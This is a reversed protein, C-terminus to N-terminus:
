EIMILKNFKKPFLNKFNRMLYNYYIKKFRKKIFDELEDNSTRIFKRYNGAIISSLTVCLTLILNGAFIGAISLGNSLGWFSRESKKNSYLGERLIIDNYEKLLEEPRDYNSDKFIVEKLLQAGRKDRLDIFKNFNFNECNLDNSLDPFRNIEFILKTNGSDIKVENLDLTKMLLKKDNTSYYNVKVNKIADYLDCFESSDTAALERMLRENESKQMEPRKYRKTKNKIKNALIEFEKESYGINHIFYPKMEGYFLEMPQDLYWDWLEICDLNVFAEHYKRPVRALVYICFTYCSCWIKDYLLISTIFNNLGELGLNRPFYVSRQETENMFNGWKM